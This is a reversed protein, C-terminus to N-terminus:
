PRPPWRRLVDVLVRHEVAHFRQAFDDFGEGDVFPVVETALVPGADVEPVALHVMLGTHDVRGAQWAAWARGLADLGPYRGPLAPHLNLVRGAFRDLFAASLIRLWGALVVADPACDAVRRALDADYAARADPQGRFPAFPVHYAPVGSAEARVRAGAQARDVFVAVVRVDLTGAAIADLIAQLNSGEGSALVVLRRM